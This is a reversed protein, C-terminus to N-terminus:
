SKVNKCAKLKKKMKEQHLRQITQQLHFDAKLKKLTITLM